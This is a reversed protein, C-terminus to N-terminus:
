KNEAKPLSQPCFLSCCSPVCDSATKCKEYGLKQCLKVLETGGPKKCEPDNNMHKICLDRQSNLDDIKTQAPYFNSSFFYLLVGLVLVSLTLVVITELTLSVGKRRM